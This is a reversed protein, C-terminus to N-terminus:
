VVTEPFPSLTLDTPRKMEKRMKARVRAGKWGATCKHLFILDVDLLLLQPENETEHNCGYKM